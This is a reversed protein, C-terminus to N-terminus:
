TSENTNAQKRRLKAYVSAGASVTLAIGAASALIPAATVIFPASVVGLAVGVATLGTPAAIAAGVLAVGASVKAVKAVSDARDAIVERNKDITQLMDTAKVKLTVSGEALSGTVAQVKSQVRNIM